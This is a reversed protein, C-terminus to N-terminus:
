TGGHSGEPQKWDCSDKIRSFFSKCLEEGLVKPIYRTSLVEFCKALNM